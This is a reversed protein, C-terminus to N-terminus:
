VQQEEPGRGGIGWVHGASEREWIWGRAQSRDREMGVVGPRAAGVGRRGGQTQNTPGVENELGEDLRRGGLGGETGVATVGLETRLHGQEEGVRAKMVQWTLDWGDKLAGKM